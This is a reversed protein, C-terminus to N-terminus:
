NGAPEMPRNYGRNSAYGFESLGYGKVGNLTVRCWAENIEFGGNQVYWPMEPQRRDVELELVPSGPVRFKLTFREPILGDGGIEMLDTSYSVPKVGGPGAIWGSALRKFSDGYDVPSVALYTVKMGAIEIEEDLALVTWLYRNLFTWDRKGWSHDRIGRMNVHFVQDTTKVTGTLLGGQEIRVQKESRIRKFYEKSWLMEAMARSTGKLDMHEASCYMAADAKWTLDAEAPAGNLPGRYRIHWEGNGRHEYTLGAASIAAPDADVSLGAQHQDNAYRYGDFVGWFWLEAERNGGRFGLRTLLVNGRSDAGQFVFSDNYHEKEVGDPVPVRHDAPEASQWEPRRRAGAKVMLFAIVNKVRTGGEPVLGDRRRPHSFALLVICVVLVSLFIEAM